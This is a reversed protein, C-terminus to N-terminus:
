DKEMLNRVRAGSSRIRELAVAPKGELRRQAAEVLKM